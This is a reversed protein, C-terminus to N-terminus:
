DKTLDFTYHESLRGTIMIEKVGLKKLQNVRLLNFLYYRAKEETIREDVFVVFLSTYESDSTGMQVGSMIRDIRDSLNWAFDRRRKGAVSPTPTPEPKQIATPSPSSLQPTSSSLINNNSNRGLKTIIVGLIVLGLAIFFTLGSGQLITKKTIYTAKKPLPAPHQIQQPNFQRFDKSLPHGCQPCYLVQSSVQSFCAPCQILFIDSPESSPQVAISLPATDIKSGCRSCTIAPASNHFGCKTCRASVM